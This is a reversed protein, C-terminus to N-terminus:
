IVCHAELLVAHLARTGLMAAFRIHRFWVEPDILNKYFNGFNKPDDEKVLLLSQM